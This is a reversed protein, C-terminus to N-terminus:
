SEIHVEPVCGYEHDVRLKRFRTRREYAHILRVLETKFEPETFGRRLSSGAVPRYDADDRAANSRGRRQRIDRAKSVVAKPGASLVEEQEERPLGAIAAAASVSVKGSDVAAVLDPAGEKLVKGGAEVSRPAVNLLEAAQDRARGASGGPLKAGLDTRTGQRQRAEEEFLKVARAAIIARQSEDLHRRRLNLSLVLGILSGNGDWNKFRPEVNALDCAAYRNRGDIIRGDPHLWIEERLGNKRIDEVLEEFEEAPMLPFIETVPHAKRQSKRNQM